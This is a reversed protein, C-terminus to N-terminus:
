NQVFIKVSASGFHGNYGRLNITLYHIGDTLKSTDLNWTMPFFGVENEVFYNGDIFLIPEFRENLMRLQDSADLKFRVPVIGKVVPTGLNNKKLTPPLVVNVKFDGRNEIYQQSHLKMRKQKQKKRKRTEKPWSINEILSIENQVPGVIITNDSLTFAQANVEVNNLKSVDVEGSNDFGHWKIEYNGKDRSVWDVLTAMLPGNNKLGVRINVRSPKLVTYKVLKNEQDWILNHVRAQVGGTFDSLDHEVQQAGDNATLTYRYAEPPVPKGSQDLGDWYISNDGKKLVTTSDIKRVLIDRDDYIKVTVHAPKDLVFDINTGKSKNFDILNPNHAVNQISLAYANNFVFVNFVLLLVIFSRSFFM